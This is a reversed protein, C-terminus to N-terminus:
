SHKPLVRITAMMGADEHDLIHCHYVFDGVVDGRFDMRVTISPYPGLGDWYPVQVTDRMQRQAAPVPKGNIAMLRFHIQHMHFEHVEGTQNEITWDEVAGQTTTIAPPANPDFLQPVQGKVTIYFLGEDPDKPDFLIESFFLQRTATVAAKDLDAFRQPGPPGSVAPMLPLAALGTSAADATRIVALIRSTDVDGKPGTNIKLTELTVRKVTSPIAPIIFEARGAPPIFIDSVPVLRGHGRGDQSGLAVGDQAVLDVQQPVGDFKLVLDAITNSAANVVRWFEKQNPQVTLAGPVLTPFEVPVYNLSVDWFPEEKIDTATTGASGAKPAGVKADHLSLSSLNEDRMILIRAPLKAVKPQVNEIGEVVIAGSAGGLVAASAIGHVHPHYWYMGPPENAPIKITYTFSDGPNVLTRIVEDSHCTPAVNLGHFHLNVSGPQMRKAGCHEDAEAMPEMVAGAPLRPVSNRLTINMTDGPKVHLTPSEAGDKTVYCFLTRQSFDVSTSYTLDVNLVGKNSYLDPPPVIQSGAAPRQCAPRDVPAEASAQSASALSALLALLALGTRKM